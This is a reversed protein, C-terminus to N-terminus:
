AAGNAALATLAERLPKRLSAPIKEMIEKEAREAIPSLRAIAKIGEDTLMVEYARADEKDRKRALYGKEILRRVIDAMTSRDIGTVKVLGTQSSASNDRVALLVTRQSPTIEIKADEVGTFYIATAAQQARHLLAILSEPM